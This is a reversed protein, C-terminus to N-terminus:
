FCENFRVKVSLLDAQTAMGENVLIETDHLMQQLLESYDEALRAKWSISVIQWYAKDVEAALQRCGTDYQSQALEEALSAIKNAAVIKGGTFVPQTVSVAGIFINQTDLELASDIDNGIKNLIDGIHNLITGQLPTGLGTLVDSAEQPILHIDRSNYMYAGSVSIDPFYNSMAIKRDHGAVTMKQRAIKLEHNNAMASDRCQQLTLVRAYGATWPLISLVATLIIM